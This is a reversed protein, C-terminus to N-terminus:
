FKDINPLIKEPLYKHEKTISAKYQEVLLPRLNRELITQDVKKCFSDMMQDLPYDDEMAVKKLKKLAM